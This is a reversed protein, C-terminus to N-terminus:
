ISVCLTPRLPNEQVAVDYAKYIKSSVMILSWNGALLEPPSEVLPSFNVPDVHDVRVHKM